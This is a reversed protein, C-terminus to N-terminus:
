FYAVCNKKSFNIVLKQNENISQNHLERVQNLIALGELIISILISIDDEILRQIFSHLLSLFSALEKLLVLPKAQSELHTKIPLVIQNIWRLRMNKEESSRELLIVLPCCLLLSLLEPSTFWSASPM